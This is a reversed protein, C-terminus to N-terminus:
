WVLSIYLVELMKQKFTDLGLLCALDHCRYYGARYVTWHQLTGTYEFVAPHEFNRPKYIDPGQHAEAKAQQEAYPLGLYVFANLLRAQLLDRFTKDFASLM